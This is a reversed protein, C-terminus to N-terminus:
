MCFAHENAGAHKRAAILMTELTRKLDDGRDMNLKKRIHCRQSTINSESKKLDYCIEKLTKGQLILRCIERESNTLGELVSDLLLQDDEENRLLESAKQYLSERLDPSLRSLLSKATEMDDDHLDVLMTIARNEEKSLDRPQRLGDLMAKMNIFLAYVYLVFCVFFAKASMLIGWIAHRSIYLIIVPLLGLTIVLSTKYLMQVLTILSLVFMIFANSIFSVGGYAHDDLTGLVCELVLKAFVLLYFCSVGSIFSIRRKWFVFQLLLYIAAHGLTVSVGVRSKLYGFMILNFPIIFSECLTLLLYALVRRRDLIGCYQPFFHREVHIVLGYIFRKIGKEKVTKIM